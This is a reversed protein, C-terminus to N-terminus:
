ETRHFVAGLLLGLTTGVTAVSATSALATTAPSAPTQGAAQDVHVNGAGSCGDFGNEHLPSATAKLSTVASATSISSAAETLLGVAGAVQPSAASTGGSNGLNRQGCGYSAPGFVPAAVDPKRRGCAVSGPGGRSSYTQLGDPQGNRGSAAVTIVNSLSNPGSIGPTSGDCAQGCGVSGTASNGAAFVQIVNSRSAVTKVASTVPHDCIGTCEPFGWSNNVVVTRDTTEALSAIVDQAQMLESAALTTKIPYVDSEPLLGVDLGPTTEDGAMIGTAMGGHDSFLTWPDNQGTLDTGERQRDDRIATACAGTDVIVSIISEGRIGQDHLTSAGSFAIADDISSIPGDAAPVGGERERPAPLVTAGSRGGDARLPTTELEPPVNEEGRLARVRQRFEDLERDDAVLPLGQLDDHVAEVGALAALTQRVRSTLQPVSVIVASAQAAETADQVGPTELARDKVATLEAGSGVSLILRPM